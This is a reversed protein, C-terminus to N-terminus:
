GAALGAVLEDVYPGLLHTLDAATKAATASPLAAHSIALRIFTDALLDAEAPSVGVWIEQVLASLRAGLASVLTGGRITVLALLADGEGASIARVIPHHEVAALFVELAGELAQRPEAARAALIEEVAELFADAERRVYAAALDERTGFANYVTQRSVGAKTAVEAMSVEAWARDALLGGVADLLSEDRFSRAAAPYDPRPPASAM